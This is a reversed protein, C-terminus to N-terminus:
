KKVILNSKFIGELETMRLYNKDMYSRDHKFRTNTKLDKDFLLSISGVNTAGIFSMSFFGNIWEGYLVVRENIKFVNPRRNVYAPMVPLLKGGIHRRYNTSVLAPSHFRHYDSPSLYLLIFKLYNGRNKIKELIKVFYRNQTM